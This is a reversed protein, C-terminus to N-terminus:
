KGYLDELANIVNNQNKKNSKGLIEMSGDTMRYYVRAGNKSRLEYIGDFLFNSGSGPNTNGSLFKQVLEDAERQLTSDKGMEEAARVLRKDKNISSFVRCKTNHM